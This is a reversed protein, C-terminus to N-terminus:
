SRLGRGAMMQWPAEEGLHIVPADVYVVEGLHKLRQYFGAEEELWIEEITGNDKSTDFGGVAYYAWKWYASGRGLMLSGFYLPKALNLVPEFEGFYKSTTVAVVGPKHFEQLVLNLWNPPYYTDADVSVIIDGSAERTALDRAKLKGRPAHLVKDVLPRIEDVYPVGDVFIFEFMEPYAKVVNQNKLSAITTMVFEKPEKWAPIIITVKAPPRVVPANEDFVRRVAGKASLASLIVVPIALEAVM